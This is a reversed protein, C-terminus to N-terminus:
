RTLTDAGKWSIVGRIEDSMPVFVSVSLEFEVATTSVLKLGGPAVGTGIGFVTAVGTGTPTHQTGSKRDARTRLFSASPNQCFKEINVVVGVLTPPGPFQSTFPWLRRGCLETGHLLAMVMLSWGMAAAVGLGVGAAVGVGTGVGVGAAAVGVGVGDAVGFGAGVAVGMAM